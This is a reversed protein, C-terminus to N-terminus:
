RNDEDTVISKRFNNKVEALHVDTAKKQVPDTIGLTDLEWLERINAEQAHMSIITFITNDKEKLQINHKGMLTWGLRTEFAVPGSTLM